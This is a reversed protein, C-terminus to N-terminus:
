PAGLSTDLRVRERTSLMPARLKLIGQTGLAAPPQWPEQRRAATSCGDASQSRRADHLVADVTRAAAAGLAYPGPPWMKAIRAEIRTLQVQTLAREIGYGGVSAQSLPVILQGSSGIATLVVETPSTQAEMAVIAAVASAFAEPASGILRHRPIRLDRAAALLMSAQAAGAFVIPADGLFPALRALM